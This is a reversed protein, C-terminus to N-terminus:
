LTILQMLQEAYSNTISCDSVMFEQVYPQLHSLDMREHQASVASSIAELISGAMNNDDDMWSDAVFRLVWPVCPHVLVAQRQERTGSTLLGRVCMCVHVKTKYAVEDNQVVSALFDLFGPSLVRAIFSPGGLVLYRLEQIALCVVTDDDCHLMAALAEWGVCEELEDMETAIKLLAIQLRMCPVICEGVMASWTNKFIMPMYPDLELDEIKLRRVLESLLLTAAPVIHIAEPNIVDICLHMIIALEDLSYERETCSIFCSFFLISYEQCKHDCSTYAWQRAQESFRAFIHDAIQENKVKAYVLSAMLKAIKRQVYNTPDTYAFIFPLIETIGCQFLMELFDGGQHAMPTLIRLVTIILERPTEPTLLSFLFPVPNLRFVLQQFSEEHPGSCIRLLETIEPPAQGLSQVLGALNTLIYCYYSDVSYKSKPIPSLHQLRNDVRVDSM